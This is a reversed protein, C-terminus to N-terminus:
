RSKARKGGTSKRTTKRSNSRSVQLASSRSSVSARRNRSGTSASKRTAKKAGTKRTTAQKRGASASARATATKKAASKKGATKTATSKKSASKKAAASKRSATGPKTAKQTGAKRAGGRTGTSEETSSGGLGVLNALTSLIGTKKEGKKATAGATRSKGAGTKSSRSGARASARAGDAEAPQAKAKEAAMRDGLEEIQDQTLVDEAKDFLEGEEEEVHHEVNERLVTLKANWEDNPEGAALEALLEKVVKHEEYAELTIDRSEPAQELVPYFITEEVHAHLDLESKLQNFFGKKAQDSAAEIEQFLTSVKKHDNKLLEFADMEAEELTDV